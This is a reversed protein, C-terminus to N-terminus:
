HIPLGETTSILGVGKWKMRRMLTQEAAAMKELDDRNTEHDYGLLHLFGHVLLIRLEAQLSHQREEAQRTATDFSIVIDGLLTGGGQPFSLVDTPKEVCRWHTNLDAIFADSCLVLSLEADKGKVAASVLGSADIRLSEATALVGQRDAIDDSSSVDVVVSCTASLHVRSGLVAPHDRSKSSRLVPPRATQRTSSLISTRPWFSPPATVFCPSM